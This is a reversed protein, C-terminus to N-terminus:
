NGQEPSPTPNGISQKCLSNLDSGIKFYEIRKFYCQKSVVTGPITFEMPPQVDGKVSINKDIVMTMARKWIPSAGTVGSTLNQNMPTNDNNGVWVATLFKRNYGFTWNDRKSNTTGTKVSVVKDGLNLDSNPGFASQRAFNDSLIDSLIFSTEESLVRESPPTSLYLNQGRYDTISLIPNLAVKMGYNAFTGYAVAMDIMKVEAGGLALSLGYREPTDWTSIGLKQAHSIFNSIGLTNLTKVAPINYSNALAYRLPVKGHYRGDYNVPRYVQSGSINFQVPSDDIITAATYNNELALSYLLPKISSGPQRRATTVNFAGYPQEYYNRSGVMALVEGTSPSTVLISGNSVNLHKIKELEEVLIKEAEQQMNIDLSTNVRLGGEEVRQIGYQEELLAKVYFVFHPARVFVKPPQIVIETQLEKAYQERSLYGLDYMSRLVENKRNIAYQPNIFPSYKSPARTLGALMAAEGINLDKASKNFYTKSAEEIGYASGGYPVQNLYMQLIEKKSFIQETWLALVGERIKRELTREPTLLSTKVLQQTITSGGQLEGKLIMEKVARLIGGIPSVGNHTYFDKDEISITAQIVHNPVADIDIPTRNQDRYFDYLLNGNRDYIQTSVPFNVNGILRPNPLSLIFNYGRYVFVISLATLVGILFYGLKTKLSSQVAISSKQVKKAKPLKKPLNSISISSIGQGFLRIVSSIAKFIPACLSIVVDGIFILFVVFYFFAYFVSKVVIGYFGTQKKVYAPM